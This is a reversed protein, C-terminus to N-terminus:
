STLIVNRHRYVLSKAPQLPILIFRGSNIGIHRKCTVVAIIPAINQATVTPNYTVLLAIDNATAAISNPLEINADKTPSNLTEYLYLETSVDVENASAPNEKNKIPSPINLETMANNTLYPTQHM